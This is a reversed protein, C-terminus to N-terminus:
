KNIQMANSNLTHIYFLNWFVVSLILDNKRPYWKRQHFSSFDMAERLFSAYISHYKWTALVISYMFLLYVRFSATRYFSSLMAYRFWFEALHKRWWLHVSWSFQCIRFVTILVNGSLEFRLNVETPQNGKSLIDLLDAASVFYFRPFALRKTELYEALAKECLALRRYLVTDCCRFRWFHFIFM